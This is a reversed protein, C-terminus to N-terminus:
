ANELEAINFKKMKMFAQVVRTAKSPDSLLGPLIKPVIQWSLGYKDKLWGCNSEKGGDATLSTWYFDIEEQTDCDVVFSVSENFEFLPGGNLAIFKKGLLEFSVVIGTDQVIRSDKFIGCYFQAAELGQNNFWLCPYIENTM